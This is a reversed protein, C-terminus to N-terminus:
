NDLAKKDLSSSMQFIAKSILNYISNTSIVMKAAIEPYSLDAYFKLLLAEQQRRTLEKIAANIHKRKHERHQRAIIEKEVCQVHGEKLYITDFEINIREKKIKRVIKRHVSCLLYAKVSRPLALNDKNNWIEVFLDHVCDEILTKDPHLKLSNQIMVGFYRHYLGEFAERSGNKFDNWLTEDCYQQLKSSQYTLHM